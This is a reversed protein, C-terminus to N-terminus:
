CLELVLPRLLKEARSPLNYNVSGIGPANTAGVTDGRNEYLDTMILLVAVVANPVEAQAEARTGYGSTYVVTYPYGEYWTGNLRGIESWDDYDTGETLEEDNMYVFDVSVIPRKYLKLIKTGDGIRNETIQRSIFARGTFDEAKKTAANILNAILDDDFAEFTDDSAERDYSATVPHNLTPATGFTITAASISYDGPELQLVGNVYLRLSGEIPTYDLSFVKGAGDGAGVYEAEVRLSSAADVRLFNKAQNIDVLATDNLAM